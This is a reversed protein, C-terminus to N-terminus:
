VPVEIDGVPVRIDRVPIRYGQSTSRYGLSISRHRQSTSRNRQSTSRYRSTSGYEGGHDRAHPDKRTSNHVEHDAINVYFCSTTHLYVIVSAGEQVVVVLVAVKMQILIFLREFSRIFLYVLLPIFSKLWSAKLYSISSTSNYLSGLM